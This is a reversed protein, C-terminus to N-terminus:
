DTANAEAQKGAAAASAVFGLVSGNFLMTRLLL